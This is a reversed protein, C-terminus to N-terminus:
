AKCEAVQCHLIRYSLLQNMVQCAQALRGESAGGGELLTGARQQFRAEVVVALREGLGWFGQDVCAFV